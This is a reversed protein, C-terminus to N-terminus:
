YEPKPRLTLALRVAETPDSIVKLGPITFRPALAIVPKGIKLSLAMESLTGYGGAVAIVADATQVIIANRAQGMNTAIPFDIYANAADTSPGPLIGMTAGGAEKAGRAAATMVGGLGGCVLVAGEHAIARGVAAALAEVDASLIGGEGVVGVLPQRM